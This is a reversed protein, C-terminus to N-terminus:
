ARSNDLRLWMRENFNSFGQQEFFAKAKVNFSWVDLVLTFIEKTQAFLRVEEILRTGYGQNQYKATVALHHIYIYDMAYRFPNEPLSMVQAYIYGVPEGKEFGIFMFNSADKLLDVVSSAAFTNESPSKFLKPLAQAHLYQVDANLTSIVAADSITAQRVIM